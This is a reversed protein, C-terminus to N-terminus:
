HRYLYLIYIYLKYHRESARQTLHRDRKGETECVIVRANKSSEGEQERDSREGRRKKLIWRRDTDM